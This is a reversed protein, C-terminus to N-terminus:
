GVDRRAWSALLALQGSAALADYVGVFCWGEPLAAAMVSVGVFAAVALRALATWELAGRVRERRAAGDAVRWPLLYAAGVAAVFVGLWRVFVDAAPDSSALGLLAEVRQPSAALLAGTALDGVGLAQIALRQWRPPSPIGPDISM